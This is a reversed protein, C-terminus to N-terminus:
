RVSSVKSWCWEDRDTGKLTETAACLEGKESLWYVIRQPYDHEPNEFVIKKASQETMRFPTPPHGGPQAFFTIDDGKQGITAFEFSTKGNPRVERHMNLMVGGKATTWQEDMEVGKITGSWSGAM